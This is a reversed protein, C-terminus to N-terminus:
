EDQIDVDINDVTPWACIDSYFDAYEAPIFPTLKIIDYVKAQKIPVKGEPYSIRQIPLHVDASSIHAMRFTHTVLGDIFNRAVLTGPISNCYTFHTFSSIAFHVKGEKPTQRSRTEESVCHKKYLTPWWNKFDFVDTAQVETVVFKGPQSSRIILNRIEEVSYIRDHKRLEKKITGFDRDCPLFSHGRIPFYQEITKFRGSQTLCLMLRCLTHNKNQGGCNDAYLRLETINPPVDQLFDYLLSCVENPGKHAIGEHYVYFRATNKKIDHICFVNVSLQRLYFTEQVPIVPLPINQMFDMCLSLVHPENESKAEYQLKAYFKKARRKHIMLEAVASRKASDTIHPHKIKVQLEECTCCCDIQPRGFHLNYSSNFVDLFVHYSCQLEPYKEKMLRYMCSVSLRADLYDKTKGSYHAQKVPFSEIHNRIIERTEPPLTNASTGKGRKDEPTKGELLLKRIRKVRKDTIANLALFAKYCVQTRKNGITIYYTFTKYVQKSSHEKRPRRRKVDHAEILSQILLDQENKSPLDHVRKFVELEDDDSIGDFCKFRKCSCCILVSM